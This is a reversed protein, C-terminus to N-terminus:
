ELNYYRANAQIREQEDAPFRKESLLRAAATRGESHAGAFWAAIALEDLARWAYTPEDIFLADDPRHAAVAARAYLLADAWRESKRSLRALEVLAEIRAPRAHYAALYARRVDELPRGLREDIVAVQLLSYAVEEQWGGMGARRVYVRKAEALRGADRLSQALYFVYRANGPDTVLAEELLRADREFKNVRNSGAAHDIFWAGGLKAIATGVDLYEHTVGVYRATSDRRLLRTNYYALRNRQLLMYAVDDIEDAFRPDDIVLEMDADCFLIYDYDLASARAFDLAANRAQSFDHFEARHLEGPIGEAEFFRTILTETDDTSGTDCIIWAGIHPAMSRLCREIIASENKVIMNLCLRRTM